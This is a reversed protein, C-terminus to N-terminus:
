QGSAVKPASELLRAIQTPGGVAKELHALSTYYDYMANVHNTEAQTLATQADFVEIQTSVGAKYRVEALRMSERAQELAKEATGVRERSENLGLYAQQVDLKVGLVTQEYGLKISNKESQAQEVAARTKGGDYIPMSVTVYGTWSNSRPNFLTTTLNQNMVWQLNFQPKSGQKAISVMDGAVGEQTKMMLVEPRSICAADLCPVLELNVFQPQGPEELEVPASLDRGLTNNFASKALEVGNQASILSQQADAVETEARLVDFPAATGAKLHLKTEELHAQLQEVRRSQVARYKQARLVSYYAQKVQLTTDNRAKDYDHESAERTLKAAHKGKKIIGFIDIPQNLTLNAAQNNLNNLPVSQEGFEVTSVQDLRTYTGQVNLKPMGQSTAQDVMAKSKKINERAMGLVPNHELAYQVSQDLTMAEAEAPQGIALLALGVGACVARALAPNLFSTVKM